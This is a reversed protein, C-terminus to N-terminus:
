TLRFDSLDISVLLLDRVPQLDPGRFYARRRTPFRLGQVEVIENV